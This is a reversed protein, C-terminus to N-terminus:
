GHRGRDPFDKKEEKMDAKNKKTSKPGKGLFLLLMVALLGALIAVLWTRPLSVGWAAAALGLMLALVLPLLPRKIVPSKPGGTGRQLAGRRDASRETM